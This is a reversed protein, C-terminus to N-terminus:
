FEDTYSVKEIGDKNIIYHGITKSNKKHGLPINYKEHVSLLKSSSMPCSFHSDYEKERKEISSLYKRATSKKGFKPCNITEDMTIDVYNAFDIQENPNIKYKNNECIIYPGLEQGIVDQSKALMHNWFRMGNFNAALDGYSFVGTELINGGLIFKEKRVGYKLVQKLSKGRQYFRKYYLFGMGFMHELKDTGIEVEGVKIVPSLTELSPAGISYRLVGGDFFGWDAFVSQKLATVRKPFSNDHLIEQVFEGKMHNAFYVRLKKYLDKSDCSKDENTKEIAEKLYGNAMDNLIARSDALPEFRNTYHDVEAAHTTLLIPLVLFLKKMVSHYCM